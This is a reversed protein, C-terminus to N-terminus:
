GLELDFRINEIDQLSKSMADELVDMANLAESQLADTTVVVNLQGNIVELTLGTYARLYSLHEKVCEAAACLYSLASPHDHLYHLVLARQRTDDPLVYLSRVRTLEDERKLTKGRMGTAKYPRTIKRRKSM